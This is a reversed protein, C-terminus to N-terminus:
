HRRLGIRKPQVEPFKVYKIDVSEYGIRAVIFEKDLVQGELANVTRKGNGFVAIKKDPPGFNGLYELTFEPPKPIAAVKAAEAAAAAAAAAARQRALEQERLEAATPVHIPPPPPPPPDVFRWPDRGVKSDTAVHDLSAMKLVALDGPRAIHSERVPRPHAAGAEDGPEAGPAHVAAAPAGEDPVGFGLLPRLYHWGAFAALSALVILLTKQRSSGNM